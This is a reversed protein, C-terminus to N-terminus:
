VPNVPHDKDQLDQL